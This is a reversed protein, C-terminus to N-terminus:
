EPAPGFHVTVRTAIEIEGQAIPVAESMAMDASRLMPPRPISVAEEAIRTVPGLPVGAAEAYLAAKRLADTVARRRAEDMLAETQSLGFQLGDFRTAGAAVVADLLGGLGDLDRARVSVINAAQYGVLRQQQRTQDYDWVPGLALESTQVDRPEVGAAAVRELVARTAESVQALAEGPSDARAEVGLRLVAMDPMADVRGEGTVTIAPPTQGAAAFPALAMLGAALTAALVAAPLRGAAAANVMKSM